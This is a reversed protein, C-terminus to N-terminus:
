FTFRTQLELRRNNASESFISNGSGAPQNAQGFLPSTINGIIPGPNNHNTINRIQMSVTLSYRRSGSAATTPGSGATSFPSQPAGRVGGPAGQGTSAGSGAAGKERPGGFTFTRGIRMNLMIQGPGRGYNRSILKEGPLPNPDLLGYPTAVVGAKNPDTSIGPRDNFLTDGYIDRGVTIDFPPGTNVTLLPNLRIGWKTTITGSLMVRHRMDTAAPGYEGQMSYPVAPFTGLGDTNSNAVNYMYAGTLSIDRNVKSTVNVIIQNQNYLGTSEMLFVAGPRGLPFVGSGPVTPAFTGPLPANIDESRLMHLGHSNAYTVAVTTNFPLQREYAVALQLLYPAQMDSSVQQITSPLIATAISSIAPITPYFNPTTVIYQQQIVGNSRKATLTNALSFRDYFVGFGARIVNKGPAKGSSGPAWAFGVRPAVDRWDHINTQTEYRLGINVTLNPRLKWDDGIFAGLDFQNGTILPNGTTIAFQTPGGGLNRIQIPSLGQGQFLVTRRYSEISTINVMVPQGAGDLIPTNDANLEPAPGGGFTYTGNYNLPSSSSETTERLRVGFRLTHPGRLISTYNQLEYNDQTDTSHGLPNGGGNFAGLVQLAYGATNAHSATSSRFYQFRSENIVSTGLVATETMQVTQGVANWHYGRSALNFGGTGADRVIDRNYSYRVSLTNNANLQYDVRPTVGTRRLGSLPTDTFPTPALSQPDLTVANVVNGNDVFERLLILNFSARRGLPGSVTNRFENLHFPAKEAAYANRSNWKDNAFNYGVDGHYKDSGPKTFIEIRGFGIKDYEPSFPNQNIRIERIADKPPLQGGSFGDIFIAGGNPGAAPGALAQLDAALDDPNDSLADLDTGRLVIASANATAETSVAQGASEEVTLQQKEAAVYLVLNLTQVGAKLTIHVPARLGLGPASAQVTYDGSPLSIFSYSGDNGATTLKSFKAAGTLLVQSGPVIADSEDTVRGHLSATQAFASSALALIAAFSYTRKTLM